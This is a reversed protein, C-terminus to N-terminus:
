PQGLSATHRLGVLPAVARGHQDSVQQGLVARVALGSGDVSRPVRRGPTERVLPGPIPAAGLSDRIAVPEAGLDLLKRCREVAPGLDRVDELRLVCRIYGEKESLRVVGAGHPLRLTRRYANGDFEEVEKM